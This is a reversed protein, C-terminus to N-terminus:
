NAYDPDITAESLSRPSNANTTYHSMDIVISM